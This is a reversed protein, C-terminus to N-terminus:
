IGGEFNITGESLRVIAIRSSKTEGEVGRFRKTKGKRNLVNVKSVKVGDYIKEVARRIDLKTAKSNVKFTHVGEVANMSKETMVPCILCDYESIM